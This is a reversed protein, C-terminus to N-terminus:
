EGVRYGLGRITQIIEPQAPDNELKARLRKIYVTLTNDSVYNGAIDFLDEMIRGRELIQGQHTFFLLLLRYELPSLFVEQDEKYVKGQKTHITIDKYRIPHDEEKHNRKLVRGIRALLERLRFPKTVYDDAGLQFGKVTNGEDDIATLFIVPTDAKEKLKKCLSFGSGDPLGIDLLALDFTGEEAAKLADEVNRCYIVGYGEAELAYTLGSAIIEDDEVFLITTM